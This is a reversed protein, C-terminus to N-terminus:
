NYKANLQEKILKLYKKKTEERKANIFMGLWVKKNSKAAKEWKESLKNESLFKRFEVPLVLNEIDNLADWTGTRKALDIMDMGSKKIRNAKLLRKVKEKNFQSWASKPNRPGVRLSTRENDIGKARSDIWGYCILTDIIEELIIKAKGSGQKYYVLWVAEKQSYNEKLWKELDKQTEINISKEEM